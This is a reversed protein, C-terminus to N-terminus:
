TLLYAPLSLRVVKEGEEVSDYNAVAKGGAAVIEQVVSDAARSGNGQGDVSGGLDNVTRAIDVDAHSTPCNNVSLPLVASQLSYHM